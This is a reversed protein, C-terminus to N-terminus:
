TGFGKGCAPSGVELDSVLGPQGLGWGVQDQVGGTISYGCGRQAVQELM